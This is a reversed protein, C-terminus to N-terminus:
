GPGCSGVCRQAKTKLHIKWLLCAGRAVLEFLAPQSLPHARDRSRPRTHGVLYAAVNPLTIWQPDLSSYAALPRLAALHRACLQSAPKGLTMSRQQCRPFQM